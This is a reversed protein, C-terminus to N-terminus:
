QEASSNARPLWRQALRHACLDLVTIRYILEFMSQVDSHKKQGSKYKELLDILTMAGDYVTQVDRATLVSDPFRALSPRKSDEAPPAFAPTIATDGVGLLYWCRTAHRAESWAAKFLAPSAMPVHAQCYHVYQMAVTAKSMATDLLQQFPRNATSLSHIAAACRQLQRYVELSRPQSSPRLLSDSDSGKLETLMTAVIGDEAAPLQSAVIENAAHLQLAMQDLLPAAHRLETLPSQVATIGSYRRAESKLRSSVTAFHVIPASPEKVDMASAVLSPADFESVKEVRSLFEAIPHPEDSRFTFINQLDSLSEAIDNGAIHERNLLRDLSSYVDMKIAAIYMTSRYVRHQDVVKADVSELQKAAAEVIPDLRTVMEATEALQQQLNETAAVPAVGSLGSLGQESWQQMSRKLEDRVATAHRTYEDLTIWYLMTQLSEANQESALAELARKAENAKTAIERAHNSVWYSTQGTSQFTRYTTLLDGMARRM